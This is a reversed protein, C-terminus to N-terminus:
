FQLICPCDLDDITTNRKNFLLQLSEEKSCKMARTTKTENIFIKVGKSIEDHRRTLTKM